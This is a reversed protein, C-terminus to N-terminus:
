RSGTWQDAWLLLPALLRFYGPHHWKTPHGMDTGDEWKEAVHMIVIGDFFGVQGPSLRKKLWEVFEIRNPVVDISPYTYDPIPLRGDWPGYMVDASNYPQWDFAIPKGTVESFRTTIEKEYRPEGLLDRFLRIAQSPDQAACAERYKDWFTALRRLNM